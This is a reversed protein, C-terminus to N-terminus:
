AIFPNMTHSSKPPLMESDGSAVVKGGSHTVIVGFFVITTL